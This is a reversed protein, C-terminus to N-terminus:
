DLMWFNMHYCCGADWWLTGCEELGKGEKGMM